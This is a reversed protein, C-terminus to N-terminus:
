GWTKKRSFLRAMFHRRPALLRLAHSLKNSIFITHLQLSSANSDAWVVHVNFGPCGQGLPIGKGGLENVLCWTGTSPFLSLRGTQDSHFASLLKGEWYHFTKKSNSMGVNYLRSYFILLFAPGLQCKTAMSALLHNCYGALLSTLNWLYNQELAATKLPSKAGVPWKAGDPSTKPHWM